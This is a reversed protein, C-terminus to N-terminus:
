AQPAGYAQQATRGCAYTNKALKDSIASRDPLLCAYEHIFYCLKPCIQFLLPTMKWSASGKLYLTIMWAHIWTYMVKNDGTVDLIIGEISWGVTSQRRSVFLCKLSSMTAKRQCLTKGICSYRDGVHYIYMYTVQLGRLSFSKIDLLCLLKQKIGRSM